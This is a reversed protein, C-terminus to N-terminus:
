QSSKKRHSILLVSTLLVFIKRKLKDDSKNRNNGCTTNFKIRWKLANVKKIHGSRIWPMLKAESKQAYKLSNLLSIKDSLDLNFLVVSISKAM